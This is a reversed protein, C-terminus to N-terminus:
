ASRQCKVGEQQQKLQVYMCVYLRDGWFRVDFDLPPLGLRLEVFELGARGDGLGSGPVRQM